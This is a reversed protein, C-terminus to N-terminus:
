MAETLHSAVWDWINKLVMGIAVAVTSLIFGLAVMGGTINQKITWLDIFKPKLEEVQPKLQAVGLKIATGEEAMKELREIM